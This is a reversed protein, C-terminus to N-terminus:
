FDNGDSIAFTWNASNEIFSNDIDNGINRVLIRRPTPKNFAIGLIYPNFFYKRYVFKEPNNGTGWAYGLACKNDIFYDNSFAVAADFAEVQKQDSIVDIIVGTRIGRIDTILLVLIGKLKKNKRIQFITYGQPNNFYRWKVYERNKYPAISYSEKVDLWLADVDHPIATTQDFNYESKQWRRGAHRNKMKVPVDLLPALYRWQPYKCIVQRIDYLCWYEKFTFPEIFRYKSIFIPASRESPTTYLFDIGQNGAVTFVEDLVRSSIKMGQYKRNTFYDMTKGILYDKGNIWYLRPLICFHAIIDGDHKAIVSIGKGSPNNFYTHHYYNAGRQTIGSETTQCILRDIMGCDSIQTETIIIKDKEIM